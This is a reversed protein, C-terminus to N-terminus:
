SEKITYTVKCGYHYEAWAAYLGAEFNAQWETDQACQRCELFSHDSQRYFSLNYKKM